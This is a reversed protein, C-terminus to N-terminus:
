HDSRGGADVSNGKDRFAGLSELLMFIGVSVVLSAVLVIQAVDWQTRSNVIYSWTGSYGFSGSRPLFAVTTLFVGLDVLILGSAALIRKKMNKKRTM